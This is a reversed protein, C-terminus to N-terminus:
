YGRTHPAYFAFEGCGGPCTNIDAVNSGSHAQSSADVHPRFGDPTDFHNNSDHFEVGASASYQTGVFTDASLNDFTVVQTSAAAPDACLLFVLGLMAVACAAMRARRSVTQPM